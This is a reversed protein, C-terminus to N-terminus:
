NRILFHQGLAQPHHVGGGDGHAPIVLKRNNNEIQRGTAIYHTHRGSYGDARENMLEIFVSGCGGAAPCTKLETRSASALMLPRMSFATVSRCCSIAVM